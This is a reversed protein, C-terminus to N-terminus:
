SLAIAFLETIVMRTSGGKNNLFMGSTPSNEMHFVNKKASSSEGQALMQEWDEEKLKVFIQGSSVGTGIKRLQYTTYTWVWSGFWTALASRGFKVM